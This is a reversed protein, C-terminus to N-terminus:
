PYKTEYQPNEILVEIEGEVAMHIMMHSKKEKAGSRVYRDGRM